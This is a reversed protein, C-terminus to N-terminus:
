NTNKTDSNSESWNPSWFYLNLTVKTCPKHRSNDLTDLTYLVSAKM